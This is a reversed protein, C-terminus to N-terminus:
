SDGCLHHSSGNVVLRLQAAPGRKAIALRDRLKEIATLSARRATPQNSVLSGARFRRPDFPTQFWLFTRRITAGDVHDPTATRPAKAFLEPCRHRDRRRSQRSSISASREALAAPDRAGLIPAAGASVARHAACRAPYSAVLRDLTQAGANRCRWRATLAVRVHSGITEQPLKIFYRSRNSRGRIEPFVLPNM